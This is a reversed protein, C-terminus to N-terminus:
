KILIELSGPTFASSSLGAPVPDFVIASIDGAPVGQEVLFSLVAEARARGINKEVSDQGSPDPHAGIVLRLAPGAALLAPALSALSTQQEATLRTSRNEFVLQLHKLAERIPDLVEPPLDTQIQYGPFHYSSPLLTLRADVKAAGTVPRLLALWASEMQRTAVGQLRPVGDTGIDFSRPPPLEFFRRVFAALVGPKAFPATLVHPSAKLASPDVVRAGAIEALAAVLEEKVETAPLLGTIVIADDKAQIHLEAPVHLKEVISKLLPSSATLPLKLGEPWRVEPASRLKEAHIRLDPRLDALIRSVNGAEDGEPLWGSLFLNENELRAQLGAIVHLRDAGPALRLPVLSRIAALAKERAAPSAAEGTIALDFFRVDVVPDSVEAERLRKLAEQTLVPLNERCFLWAHVGTAVPLLILMIFILSLRM